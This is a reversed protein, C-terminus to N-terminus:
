GFLGNSQNRLKEFGKNLEFNIDLKLNIYIVSTFDSKMRLFKDRIVSTGITPKICVNSLISM